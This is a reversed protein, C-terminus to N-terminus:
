ETATMNLLYEAESNSVFLKVREKPQGATAPPNSEVLLCFRWEWKTFTRSTAPDRKKDYALSAHEQLVAFDELHPPYFDVVRVTSLYCLNQFPLRYEIGSPSPNNHSPNHIIDELPQHPVSPPVAPKVASHPNTDIATPAPKL